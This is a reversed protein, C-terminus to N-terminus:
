TDRLTARVAESASLYRMLAPTQLRPLRALEGGLDVFCVFDDLEDIAVPLVHRTESGQTRKAHVGDRRVFYMWGSERVIEPGVYEVQLWGLEITETTSRAEPPLARVFAARVSGDTPNGGFVPAFVRLPKDHFPPLTPIAVHLVEGDGPDIACMTTLYGIADGDPGSVLARVAGDSAARWEDVDHFGRRAQEHVTEGEISCAITSKNVVGGLVRAGARAGVAALLHELNASM